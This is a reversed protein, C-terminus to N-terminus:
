EYYIISTVQLAQFLSLEKGSFAKKIVPASGEDAAIMTKMNSTDASKGEAVQVLYSAPVLGVQNHSNQAIWWDGFSQDLIDVQEGEGGSLEDATQAQYEYEWRFRGM